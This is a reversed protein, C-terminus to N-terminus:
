TAPTCRITKAIVLYHNTAVTRWDSYSLQRVRLLKWCVQEPKRAAATGARLLWFKELHIHENGTFTQIRTSQHTSYFMDTHRNERLGYINLDLGCVEGKGLNRDIDPYDICIACNM